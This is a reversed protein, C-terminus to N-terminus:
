YDPCIRVRGLDTWRYVCVTSPYLYGFRSVRFRRDHDGFRTLQNTSNVTVNTATIHGLGMGSGMGAGHAFANGSAVLSIAVATAGGAVFRLFGFSTM